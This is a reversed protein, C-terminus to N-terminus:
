SSVKRLFTKLDIEIFDIHDTDTDPDLGDTEDRLWITTVGMASAPKLNVATDEIMVANRPEIGHLQMMEGYIAPEPKPRHGARIIDYCGSFHQAIGYADLIQQAHQETGNTFIVKHGPLKALMGELEPDPEVDDLNIDHVFALFEDPDVKHEKILGSATTGHRHLLDKQLRFAREPDLDFLNQIFLTMRESVRLFLKSRAPYITNDLDFIWFDFGDAEFQWASKLNRAM